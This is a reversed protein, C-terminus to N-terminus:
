CILEIQHIEDNKIARTLAQKGNVHCIFLEKIITSVVVIVASLSPIRILFIIWVIVNKRPYGHNKVDTHNILLSIMYIYDLSPFVPSIMVFFCISKFSQSQNLVFFTARQKSLVLFIKSQKKKTIM